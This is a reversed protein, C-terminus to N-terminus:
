KGKENNKKLTQEGDENWARQVVPEVNKFVDKRPKHMVEQKKRQYGNPQIYDYYEIWLEIKEDELYEGVEKLNGSEYFSMYMGERKGYHVPVIEKIARTDHAYSSIQADKPFGKNWYTKDLLNGYKDFREWRGHKVGKYFYGAEMVAGNVVREYKGHLPLKNEQETVNRLRVVEKKKPDYLYKAYVYLDPLEFKPLLYFRTFTITTNKKNKISKRKCKVDYFVNKKQKKKEEKEKKKKDYAGPNLEISPKSDAAVDLRVPPTDAKKQAHAAYAWGMLFFLVIGFRTM